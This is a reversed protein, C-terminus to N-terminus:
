AADPRVVITELASQEGALSSVRGRSPSPQLSGIIVLGLIFLMILMELGCGRNRDPNGSRPLQRHM